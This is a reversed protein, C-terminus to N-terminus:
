AALTGSGTYEAAFAAVETAFEEPNEMAAFHGGRAFETWRVVNYTKEVFSRPPFKFLEAPYVAIGTPVSIREGPALGTGEEMAGRYFWTATNFSRTLLYIMVNDLLADMGHANELRDSGDAGRRDSWRHFKEVIWAAVGVPSDMMAYSLSQPKTMQLRLYAGERDRMALSQAAWESEAGAAPQVAGRVGFMNLHVAVCGGGHAVSHRAALWGAVVSGWDGGQAIYTQYGLVERMLRDWLAATRRPGIPTNPKGSFGYGPLSSIILDCSESLIPIADLFELVSGPWGHTLLLAPAGPTKCRVHIFHISLGDIEATFNALGNLRAECRRWDYGNLWYACLERMYGMDTGYAWRDGGPAVEPMEHWEYAAVKAKIRALDADPFQIKMPHMAPAEQCKGILSCQM